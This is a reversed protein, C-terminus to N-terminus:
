WKVRGRGLVIRIGGKTYEVRSDSELKEKIEKYGDEGVLQKLLEVSQQDM